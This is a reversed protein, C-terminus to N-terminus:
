HRRASLMQWGLLVAGDMLTAANSAPGVHAEVLASFIAPRANLARLARNQVRPFRDLFLMLDAMFFPRNMLRRHAAEYAGLDGDALADALAGAQQFALCLGEGTIADVSGSADGILAVNRRVVHQFRCSVSVAGMEASVPIAQELRQRLEPFRLVARPMRLHRDRSILVVCIERPSVPTVYFQCGEGWHVEVHDSWPAIRYHRRFGYRRRYRRRKALGAWRRIYSNQGDAGIIWRARVPRGDVMAGTASIGTARVGWLCCVGTEAARDALLRHLVSRRIGLGCGSSFSAEVTTGAGVFRVGRFPFCHESGITLGLKRLALLANPMLGEGCPKEIPPRSWDALIVRFGKQRAAIAAALGAPGGGLIFIDTEPTLPM